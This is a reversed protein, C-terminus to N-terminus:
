SQPDAQRGDHDSLDRSSVVRFAGVTALTRTESERLSYDRDRDHVREREDKRPLDLDRMFVDRPDGPERNRGDLDRPDDDDRDRSDGWRPDDDFMCVEQFTRVDGHTALKPPVNGLVAMIQM